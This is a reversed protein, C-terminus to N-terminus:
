PKPKRNNQSVLGMADGIRSLKTDPKTCNGM